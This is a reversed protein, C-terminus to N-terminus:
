PNRALWESLDSGSSWLRTYYSAFYEASVPDEIGLGKTREKVDGTVALFVVKDDVIVMNVAPADISWDVVRIHYAPHDRTTEELHRAWAKMADSRASIIRRVSRGPGDLLWELVADSWGAAEDGFEQPPEDRIHTLDLSGTASWIAAKLQKYLDDVNPFRQVRVATAVSRLYRVDTHIEEVPRLLRIIAILAFLVLPTQWVAPVSLAATVVSALALAGLVVYLARDQLTAFDPRQRKM